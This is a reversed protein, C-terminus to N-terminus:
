KMWPLGRELREVETAARTAKRGEWRECYKALEHDPLMARVDRITRGDCANHSCWFGAPQGPTAEYLVTDPNVVTFREVLHTQESMVVGAGPNGDFRGIIGANEVEATGSFRGTRTVELDRCRHLEASVRGEVILKDCAGIEGSLAIARGVLLVKGDGQAPDALPTELGQALAAGVWLAALFVLVLRKM